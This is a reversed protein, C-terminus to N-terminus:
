FARLSLTQSLPHIPINLISLPQQRHTNDVPVSEPQSTTTLTTPDKEPNNEPELLTTESVEMEDKDEPNSM